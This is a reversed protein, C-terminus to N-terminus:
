KEGSVGLNADSLDAGSLNAGSLNAGSLNAGSLIAWCLDAEHFNREGVAYRKLLEEAKMM